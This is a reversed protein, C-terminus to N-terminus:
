YPTQGDPATPSDSVKKDGRVLAVQEPLVEGGKNGFSNLVYTVVDAIEEDSLYALNPMVSNYEVGNVTVPGTLGNIVVSVAKMPDDIIFDSEALPPFAGTLGKANTQHCVACNKVYLQEGNSLRENIALANTTAPEATQVGKDETKAAIFLVAFAVCSLLALVTLKKM